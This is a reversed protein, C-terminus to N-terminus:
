EHKELILIVSSLGKYAKASTSCPLIIEKEVIWGESLHKNLSELSEGTIIDHHEGIFPSVCIAKRSTKM